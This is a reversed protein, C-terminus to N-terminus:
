LRSQSRKCDDAIHFCSEKRDDTIIHFGAKLSYSDAFSGLVTFSGPGCIIGLNSRLDDRVALSGSWFILFPMSSSITRM